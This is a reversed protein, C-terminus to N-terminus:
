FQRATVFRLDLSRTGPCFQRILEPLMSMPTEGKLGSLKIINSRGFLEAALEAHGECAMTLSNRWWGDNLMEALPPLAVTIKTRGPLHHATLWKTLADSNSEKAKIAALWKEVCLFEQLSLHAFRLKLPSPELCSLLPLKGQLVQEEVYKWADMLLVDAGIAQRVHTETIDKDHARQRNDAIEVLLRRVDESQAQSRQAIDKFDLRTLMTSVASQYLEFRTKPFVAGGAQFISIVMSLMLPNGCITAGEFDVLKEIHQRMPKVADRGLRNEIIQEQQRKTLPELCMHVFAKTELFKSKTFGQSRWRSHMMLVIM